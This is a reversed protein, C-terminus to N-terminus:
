ERLLNNRALDTSITIPHRTSTLVTAPLLQAYGTGDLQTPEVARSKALDLTDHLTAVLDDFDWSGTQRPPTVLLMAQPPETGPRDFHCAIGTAQTPEPIVETWEDLLLACVPRGPTFPTTYHATYLLRDSDIVHAPPYELGLWPDGPRHPFQVPVLDPEGQGLLGGLIVIREWHRLRERVRAVGHLWDDVPFDRDLHELLSDSGNYANHWETAQATGLECEAVVIADQGLLARLATTAAEVRAPGPATGDHKELAADAAALRADIEEALGRARAPLDRVFGLVRDELPIIDLDLPDFATIPLLAKLDALLEALTTRGPTALAALADRRGAFATRRVDVTERLEAPDAPRPSTPTTTLLQEIRQLLLFREANDATPPLADYATIAADAQALTATFRDVVAAVAALTDNYVARRWALFESWGSRALGFGGARALLDGLGAGLTDVMSLANSPDAVAATADGIYTAVDDGLDALKGRVATIRARPVQVADDMGPETPDDGAPRVLDSPRLSRAGILLGRLATILASLEFFTVMGPVPETYRITFAADPPPAQTAQVYGLIRDDLDTMAPEVDIRVSALLDLPQLGLQEATVLLRDEPDPPAPPTTGEVAWTVVCVIRDPAPLLGALWDNLAPEGASRATPDLGPVPTGDPSLGGRLHLGVRHTLTIGSRPTQVVEPDQPFGGKAFADLTSSARDMNGLVAQHVGEAVALDAIADNVDLLRAVETDIVFAQKDSAQPLGTLGFPYHESGTRTVHRVLELGDVVNRAEMAEIATGPPPETDELRRARLPFATRLAGIFRDVEAVAHRDHMGRELRYGLLAGLSQGGRIGELLAMAQRVRESSLNVALTQANQPTADTVYGARLLAATTAQNLSPAHVYGGNQPDRGLPAAGPPTFVQALVGDLHVPSPQVTNPRLDELWGYAGIHVGRQAHKGDPGYRMRFLRETVMGIRWADLRYGACDLHEVLLRELRATPLDALTDIADVQEGLERTAPRQGVVRTIFDGVLTDPEGTLDPDPSYLQDFRSETRQAAGRVHVFPPERRQAFTPDPKNPNGHHATALKLGADQWGLLLGHRLLLYLLATPPQDGVFGDELRITELSRRASREMWRLYNLGDETYVRVPATESVPRDDVLPGLLGHQRGVFLRGALDPDPRNAPYGLRALLDNLAAVMGLRTLAAVADPGDGSLNLRNYYDEISQAYRQHFEVSHPHLGLIGLLLHHPDGDAGLHPIQDALQAWDTAATSLVHHLRTRHKEAPPVTFRSYATTPLIGYPQRGIRLAPVPGRGSVYRVFFDRTQQVDDPTLIPHLMTQLFYGWTAPWLAANMARAERQDHADAHGVNRLIKPDIGLLEAVWQGDTKRDWEDPGAGGGPREFTDAFSTEAEDTHEFGAPKRETNNTPTGQPLLSLGTSSRQHHAFLAELDDAGHEPSNRLRLGLVLLRDLGGRSREDLPIRVGMGIRVAEEFDTLWVLDSPVKLTGDPLARIQDDAAISPDPGVVLHEVCAEGVAGIVQEGGAYGLVAFRDPLLKARAARTWSAPKVDTDPVKRLDLFAVEVSEDDRVPRSLGSARRQRLVEARDAGIAAVLEAEAEAVADADRRAQRLKRWYTWVAGREAGTLPDDDGAVVLFVQNEHSRQPEEDQNVPRYREVIWAARGAGATAVLGRWAALRGGRDGAALWTQVWFLKAARIEHGTLREEFADLQWEDPFIRVLLEDDGTFRAEVRVPGLLLPFEGSLHDGTAARPDAVKAFDALAAREQKTADRSREQAQEAATEADAIARELEEIAARTAPDDLDATRTLETLRSRLRVILERARAADERAQEALEVGARSRDRETTFDAM